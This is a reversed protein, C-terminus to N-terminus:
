KFTCIYYKVSIYALAARLYKVLAASICNRPDKFIFYISYCIIVNVSIYIYWRLKNNERGTFFSKFYQWIRCLCKKIIIASSASEEVGVGMGQGVGVLHKHEHQDVVTPTTVLQFHLLFVCRIRSISKCSDCTHSPSPSPSPKQCHQTM